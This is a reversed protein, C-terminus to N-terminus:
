KSPSSIQVFLQYTAASTFGPWHNQLHFWRPWHCHDETVKSQGNPQFTYPLYCFSWPLLSGTQWGSEEIWGARSLWWPNTEPDNTELALHATEFSPNGPSDKRGASFQSGGHLRFPLQLNNAIDPFSESFCIMHLLWQLTSVRPDERIRPELAAASGSNHWLFLQPVALRPSCIRM